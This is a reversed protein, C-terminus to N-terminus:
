VGVEVPKENLLKELRLRTIKMQEEAAIKLEAGPENGLRERLLSLIESASKMSACVIFIHGFRAEYDRNARALDDLTNEDAQAAAGQESASWAHTAPFRARLAEFDGVRPHHSFAELIDERSARAWEHGVTDM